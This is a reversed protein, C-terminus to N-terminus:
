PRVCLRNPNLKKKEAAINQALDADGTTTGEARMEELKRAHATKEERATAIGHQLGKNM